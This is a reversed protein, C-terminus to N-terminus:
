YYEPWFRLCTEPPPPTKNVPPGGYGTQTGICLWDTCGGRVDILLAAILFSVRLTPRFFAIQRTRAPAGLYRWICQARESIVLSACFCDCVVYVCSGSVSVLRVAVSGSLCSVRSAHCALIKVRMVCSARSVRCAHCASVCLFVILRVSGSVCPMCDFKRCAHCSGRSVCVSKSVFRCSGCLRLCAGPVFRCSGVRPM